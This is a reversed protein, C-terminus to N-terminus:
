SSKFPIRSIDVCGLVLENQSLRSNTTGTFVPVTARANTSEGM